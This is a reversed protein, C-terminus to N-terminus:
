GPSQLEPVTAQVPCQGQDSGSRTAREKYRLRRLCVIFVNGVLSGQLGETYLVM